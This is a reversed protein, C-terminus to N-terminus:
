QAVALENKILNALQRPSLSSKIVYRSAGLKLVEEKIGHLVINTMVIIKMNGLDLLNAKKLFEIGNSRPMLLDLLVLDPKFELAKSIGEAGSRAVEVIHGEKNLMITYSERLDQNDEVILVKAM